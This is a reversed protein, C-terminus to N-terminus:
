CASCSPSAVSRHPRLFRALSPLACSLAPSLLACSLAPSPLALSPLAYSLRLLPLASVHALSWCCANRELGAGSWVVEVRNHVSGGQGGTLRGTRRRWQRRVQPPRLGFPGTTPPGLAYADNISSAPDNMVNPLVHVAAVYLFSGASFLLVLGTWVNKPMAVDVSSLVLYTVVSSIPPVSSFIALM